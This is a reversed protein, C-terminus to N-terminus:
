GKTYLSMAKRFADHIDNTLSNEPICEFVGFKKCDKKLSPRMSSLILSIGNQSCELYFKELAIMGSADMFLVSKMEIIYISAAPVSQLISSSGFFYPGLIKYIGIESPVSKNEINEEIGSPSENVNMDYPALIARQSMQRMFLVSSLGVGVFVAVTVNTFLTFLFSTLLVVVDLTPAKLLRLFKDLHFLELSIVMLISALIVLPIQSVIPALLLLIIILIGSRFLLALPSQAGSRANAATLLILGMSPLGGFFLLAANSAGQAVLELSPKFEVKSIDRGIIAALLSELSSTIAILFGNSIYFRVLKVDFHILPFKPSAIKSPLVGYKSQITEVPLKLVFCAISLILITLIALM